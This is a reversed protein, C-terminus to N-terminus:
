RVNRIQLTGSLTKELPNVFFSSIANSIQYKNSKSAQNFVVSAVRTVLGGFDSKVPLNSLYVLIKAFCMSVYVSVLLLSKHYFFICIMFYPSKLHCALLVYIYQNFSVKKIGM